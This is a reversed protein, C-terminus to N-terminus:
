EFHWDLHPRDVQVSDAVTPRNLSKWTQGLRRALLKAFVDVSFRQWGRDASTDAVAVCTGPRIAIPVAPFYKPRRGTRM